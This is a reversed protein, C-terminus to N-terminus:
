CSNKSNFANDAMNCSCAVVTRLLVHSAVFPEADVQVYNAKGM